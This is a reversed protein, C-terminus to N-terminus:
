LGEDYTRDCLLSEALADASTVPWIALESEHRGSYDVAEQVVADRDMGHAVVTRNLIAIWEGAFKAKIGEDQEAWDIDAWFRREDETLPVGGVQNKTVTAM